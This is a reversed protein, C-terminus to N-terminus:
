VVKAILRRAGSPVTEIALGRWHLRAWALIVRFCARRERGRVPSLRVASWLQTLAAWTPMTTVRVDQGGWWTQFTMKADSNDNQASSRNSHLRNLFLHEPLQVMRGRLALEALFVTEAFYGPLYLRSQELASTRIVSFDFTFDHHSFLVAQLRNSPRADAFVDDRFTRAVEVGEDDIYRTRSHVAVVDPHALLEAMCKELYSPDHLDDHAAWKFFPTPVEVALSNFNWGGGKNVPWLRLEIRPDKDALRRLIDPTTDSSANDSVVLRFDGFSQDLVSQISDEVYAEGNYVPVGITLLPTMGAREKDNWGEGIHESPRWFNDVLPTAILRSATLRRGWTTHCLNVWRCM